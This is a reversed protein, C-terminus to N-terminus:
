RFLTVIEAHKIGGISFPNTNVYSGLKNTWIDLNKANKTRKAVDKEIDKMLQDFKKANINAQRRANSNSM